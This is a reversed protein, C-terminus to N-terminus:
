TSAKTLHMSKWIKFDDHHYLALFQKELLEIEDKAVITHKAMSYESIKTLFLIQYFTALLWVPLYYFNLKRPEIQIGSNKIAEFGERTAYIMEKITKRSKALKINESNFRLLANAIPVVFAIHTKQWADMNNSYTPDFKANKFIKVLKKLRSTNKGDIEAFTTTQMIKAIGTGIFYTVIGNKREGGASPFGLMVREKGVANIYKEYGLPTNVVFVFNNSKNKKLIPLIDDIQNNQVVIIIYDYIDNENLERICKLNITEIKNNLANKLILGNSTIEEFRKGRALITIDNGYKALKGAFISGIAGAGYVLIKEAM